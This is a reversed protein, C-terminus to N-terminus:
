GGHQAEVGHSSVVEHRSYAPANTLRLPRCIIRAGAQGDGWGIEGDFGEILHERAKTLIAHREQHYNTYRCQKEQVKIHCLQVVMERWDQRIQGMAHDSGNPVRRWRTPTARSEGALRLLWQEGRGDRM